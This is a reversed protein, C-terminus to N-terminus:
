QLNVLINRPCRPESAEYYSDAFIVDVKMLGSFTQYYDMWAIDEESISIRILDHCNSNETQQLEFRM